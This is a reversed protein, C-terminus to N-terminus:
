LIDIVVANSPLLGCGVLFSALLVVSSCGFEPLAGAASWGSMFSYRIHNLLYM